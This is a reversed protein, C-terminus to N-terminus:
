CDADDYPAPHVRGGIGGRDEAVPERDPAVAVGREKVQIDPNQVDSGEADFCAMSAETYIFGDPRAGRYAFAVPVAGAYIVIEPAFGVGKLPLERLFKGSRDYFLAVMKSGVGIQSGDKGWIVAVNSKVRPAGPEPLAAEHKRLYEPDTMGEPEGM